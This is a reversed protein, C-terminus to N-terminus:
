SSIIKYFFIFLFILSVMDPPNPNEENIKPQDIDMNEYKNAISLDKDLRLSSVPKNPMIENSSFPHFAPSSLSNIQNIDILRTKENSSGKAKNYNKTTLKHMRRYESASIKPEFFETPQKSTKNQDVFFYQPYEYAHDFTKLKFEPKQNKKTFKHQDHCFNASLKKRKILKIM